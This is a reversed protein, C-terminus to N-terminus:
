SLDYGEAAQLSRTKLGEVGIPKLTEELNKSLLDQATLTIVYELYVKFLEMSEVLENRLSINLGSGFHTSFKRRAENMREMDEKGM